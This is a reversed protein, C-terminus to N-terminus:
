SQFNRREIELIKDLRGQHRGEEFDTKLWTEVILLAEDEPLIRGGMTLCNADNHLRSMEAMYADCCLAAYVGPYKNAVISMGLGTGCCLIGKSCTGAVLAEAAKRAFDVYDVKEESDTGFDEVVFGKEVLYVKVATKLAYGAHDSALAIKM